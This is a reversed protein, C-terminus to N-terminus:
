NRGHIHEQVASTAYGHWHFIVDEIVANSSVVDGPNSTFKLYPAIGHGSGTNTALSGDEVLANNLNAWPTNPNAMYTRPTQEVVDFNLEGTSVVAM